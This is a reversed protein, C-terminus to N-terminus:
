TESFCIWSFIKERKKNKKRKKSRYSPTNSSIYRRIKRIMNLAWPENQNPFRLQSFPIAFEASWGFDNIKVASKWIANWNKDIGSKSFKRDIQVGAATVMFNYEVQTNNFPDIWIGFADFNKNDDDRKSLECLISDPAKLYTSALLTTLILSFGDCAKLFPLSLEIHFASELTELPSASTAIDHPFVPANIAIDIIFSFFIFPIFLGAIATSQGEVLILPNLIKFEDNTPPYHIPLSEIHKAIQEKTLVLRHAVIDMKDNQDFSLSPLERLIISRIINVYEPHTKKVKWITKDKKDVLRKWEGNM